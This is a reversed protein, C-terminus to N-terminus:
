KGSRQSPRRRGPRGATMVQAMKEAVVNVHPEELLVLHDGPVDLVQLRGTTLDGWGNTPDTHLSQAAGHMPQLIEPLESTARLLVVDGDGPEPRYTLIARWHAKFMEFLRRVTTRSSGAPLVGAQTAHGVIFDFKAEEELGDPLPVVPATGGREMWLLEWFFWELLSHDAVDPREGQKVAIPDILVTGHLADPDSRRLQRAMEFAIFGGFSWGGIVYPGEPCVRRVAELYGAAMEPISSLPETGAVTGSAQLAYVPQDQPLHRALRVYCLVHGGLPHVLFLPPKDGETRIPVVPDFRAASGSGRLHQALGAVTPAAVFTSLPVNVGYRQEITMVLRMATLSTGGIDFFNDRVGVAPLELLEALIGVLAKEHEDAPPTADSSPAALPIRRLLADDRKGSPTLPLSALWELHSPMMYDPLVARLRGRVEDLDVVDADGVLFAALFADGGERRRAVVAVERIGSAAQEEALKAIALEVEALEVRFGRVKVQSDARGLWALNGDPMVRALDGTRYLRAGPEGSPDPVFRQETLDPRNRYGHALCVGGVYIEGKAGPPVPRMLGDLLHLEIGDVPVGVPPLGPFLAPDGTMTHHTLLHTETPGYQNELVTDPRAACFRRIEDTIRLQEGSSIVVRLAAPRIGLAQSTEALQQLAVYPMFVREVEERDLLRLLAPMDKREDEALLQLTGGGCLTSYIEQFAVDFSLPAFQLTKGGAAGSASPVQWRMYNALVRHPLEVGKPEGSSGSTFLLYAVTEGTIEPLEAAGGPDPEAELLGDVYLLRSFGDFLPAHTENTVIWLPDAQATMTALRARPYSVDFPVCTAGAKGVGLVTALTEPSRDMAIGVTSGTRVGAGVLGHAIRNAAADLQAYTWSRAGCSVAVADPTRAVHEGILRIVDPPAEGALRAAPVRGGGLFAFDVDEEPQETIRRLIAVYTQGISEAQSRSFTRGDCDMRLWLREDVPDVVANVLLKFNTEEWTRFETLEMGTGEFLSTLVHPHVYNFATDFIVDGGRDEQIASLPYRRHPHSEREQAYVERASDLWSRPQADLRLPLTELFLGTIREADAQEPRGGTVLGTTIDRLGSFLRLTLCHAALLLSKVPLDHTRALRGVRDALGDPLEVQHVVLGTDGAAEYPRLGDIQALEAGDLLRQWYRKSEESALARREERVYLAPSPLEQSPVAAVPQGAHHLFDQLLERVLTAVSWGDLIAHHFSFVLELRDRLVHMRFLYLPPRDLRYEHYRREQVHRDVEDQAEQEGRGRLDVIQLGGDAQRHVLQLPESYGGLDFASRLVPHRRVLGDFARRLAREDWPSRLSYRFVDHYVASREHERSHYLLGLHLRTAPYADALGTLRARDVGPVLAFPAPPADEEERPATTAAAALAAVTPNRVMDALTFHVGARRAEAQIRLMQISDGGLSYYDQDVGVADTGLVAAWAAALKAETENSPTQAGTETEVRPAPLRRRDAKGNATLPIRDIRVFYAPIMFEPLSDLLRARLGAAGVEEDAVYYGVLHVGRGPATRDVVLADRVGPCAALRNGVEGLEVRNGRIKVQDDLRGLYELTGDALWRARDGTRYMRGGPTFPDPVFAAADLEPRDLYGRAVGVGAICLEGAVGAPQVDGHPGVVYLRINDIPRGIPVRRVEGDTGGPCDYYTVDVTAETPGYLNVLRPATAGAAAFVRNFRNVHAPTLAEGSCFVQRLSAADAVRAPDEEVLDLFPGLMSPVFHAVSVRHARVTRLIAEPDREGRPPLLALGAGTLAWWFLEWVSVDFTAPTKQLLVDGEGVPYRRQMWELRNVVSRHEIQVGKPRGTSGSTYIVYALDQPGGLPVPAAPATSAAAELRRVPVADGVLATPVTSGLLVAAVKSDALVFRVREEPHGPDVPVYAAGTKLVGLVAAVLHPGREAVVAVRDGTRVGDERLQHAIHNAWGDLRAFTLSQAPADGVVAVRDPTRAAQQEFLAHVTAGETFARVPGSGTALLAAREAEGIMPIRSLPLDAGALAGKLIADIHTAVSEVPFDADFVDLAYDMDVLVDGVDDLENVVVALVDDDHARAQVVTEYAVGQVDPPSPWRLYAITTDFLRKPGSEQLPVCRLLDGLSFREHPKLARTSAQVEAVLESMTRDGGAAVRLPLTNAFHGVTQKRLATPRNLLPVGLVVEHSGHVRSLYVAFAGAVFAFVSHGRERISEIVAREILFSHRASGRSGAPASRRFLAPSIGRLQEQFYARDDAYGDSARYSGEEETFELYSPVSPEEFQGTRRVRDYDARVQSMFLNLGWADAVIHHVKVYSHLVGESEKLVALTFLRNREVEFPVDFAEKIWAECAARPSATGSLDITPIDYAEDEAWQRPTGEAPDIRIRFADNRAVARRLCAKLLDVDVDGSFRDTIFCNFQPLDPFLSNAAWIDQQYATLSSHGRPNM